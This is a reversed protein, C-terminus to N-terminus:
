QQLNMMWRRDNTSLGKRCGLGKSVTPLVAEVAKQQDEPLTEAQYLAGMCSETEWIVLGSEQLKATGLQASINQIIGPIASDKKLRKASPSQQNSVDYQATSDRLRKTSRPSTPDISSGFDSRAWDLGGLSALSGNPIFPKTSSKSPIKNSGNRQNTSEFHVSGNTGLMLEAADSHGDDDEMSDESRDEDDLISATFGSPSSPDPVAFTRGREQPKLPTGASLSDNANRDWSRPISKQGGPSKAQNGPRTSSKDSSAQKAAFLRTGSKPQSSGFISSPPPVGAPTFSNTSSPPPGAPTTSPHPIM